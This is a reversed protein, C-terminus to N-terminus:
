HLWFILRWKINGYKEIEKIYAVTAKLAIWNESNSVEELFSSDYITLIEDGCREDVFYRTEDTCDRCMQSNDYIVRAGSHKNYEFFAEGSWRDNENGWGLELVASCCIGM